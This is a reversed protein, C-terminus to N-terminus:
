HKRMYSKAYSLAQAKTLGIKKMQNFNTKVFYNKSVAKVIQIRKGNKANVFEIDSAVVTKRADHTEKKWDKLAM